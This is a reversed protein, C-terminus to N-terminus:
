LHRMRSTRWPARFEPRLTGVLLVPLREIRAVLQGFLELSTPDLWHADELVM